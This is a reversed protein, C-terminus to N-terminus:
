KLPTAGIDTGGGPSEALLVEYDELIGCCDVTWKEVHIKGDRRLRRELKGAEPTSKGVKSLEDSRYPEAKVVEFGTCPEDHGDCAIGWLHSRIDRQLEADAVTGPVGRPATDSERPATDSERPASDSTPSEGADTAGLVAVRLGTDASSFSIRHTQEAGDRAVTSYADFFGPCLGHKIELGFWHKGPALYLTQYEGARIAFAAKNDVLIEYTCVSGLSGADRL